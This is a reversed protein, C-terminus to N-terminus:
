APWPSGCLGSRSRSMQIAPLHLPSVPWIIRAAEVAFVLPIYYLSAGVVLFVTALRFANIDDDVRRALKVCLALVLCLTALPASALQGIRALPRVCQLLASSDIWPTDSTALTGCVLLFRRARHCVRVCRWLGHVRGASAQTWTCGPVV